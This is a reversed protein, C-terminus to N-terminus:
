IMDLCAVGAEVLHNAAAIMYVASLDGCIDIGCHQTYACLVWGMCVHRPVGGGVVVLLWEVLLAVAMLGTAAAHVDMCVSARIIGHGCLAKCIHQSCGVPAYLEV